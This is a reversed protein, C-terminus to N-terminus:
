KIKKIQAPMLGTIEAIENVPLGRDMLKKAIQSIGKKFGREEGKKEGKMEAYDTFNYFDEYKYESIRYNHLEELTLEKLEMDKFLKDFIEGRIKSPQEKMKKSHKLIYLWYDQFSQLQSITKKFKSLEIYLFNLKDSFLEGTEKNFLGVSSIYANKKKRNAKKEEKDLNFNLIGIIFVAKLEYDWKGKKAQYQIAFTSYFMSRDKFHVQPM